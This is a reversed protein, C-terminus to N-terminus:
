HGGPQPQFRALGAQWLVFSFQDALTEEDTSKTGDGSHGSTAEVRLLIPKENSTAAQLRAAIKGSQWPSVRADKLGTSFLVAPYPTRDKVHQYADIALLM